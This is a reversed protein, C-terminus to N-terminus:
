VKRLWVGLSRITQMSALDYAWRRNNGMKKM